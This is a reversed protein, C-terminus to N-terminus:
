SCLSLLFLRKNCWVLSRVYRAGYVAVTANYRKLRAASLDRESDFQPAPVAAASQQARRNRRKERAERDVVTQPFRQKQIANMEALVYQRVEERPANLLM